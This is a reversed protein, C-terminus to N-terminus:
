SSRSSRSCLREPTTEIPAAASDRSRPSTPSASLPLAAGPPLQVEIRRWRELFDEGHARFGEALARTQRRWAALWRRVAPTSSGSSCSPYRTSCSMVSRAWHRANASAVTAAWAKFPAFQREGPGGAGIRRLRGLSRERPSAGVVAVSGPRFVAELAYTSM